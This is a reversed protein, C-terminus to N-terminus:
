RRQLKELDQLFEREGDCDLEEQVTLWTRCNASRDQASGWTLSDALGIRIAQIKRLTLNYVDCIDTFSCPPMTDPEAQMHRGDVSNVSSPTCIFLASGDLLEM